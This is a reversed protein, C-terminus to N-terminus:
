EECVDDPLHFQSMPVSELPCSEDGRRGIQPQGLGDSLLQPSCSEDDRRGTQPHGLGDSLLQPSCSPDGDRDLNGFGVGSMLPGSNVGGVGKGAAVFKGTPISASDWGEVVRVNQEEQSLAADDGHCTSTDSSAADGHYEKPKKQSLVDADGHAHSTVSLASLIFPSLGLGLDLGCDGGSLGLGSLSGISTADASTLESQIAVGPQDGPLLSVRAPRVVGPSSPWHGRSLYRQSFTM